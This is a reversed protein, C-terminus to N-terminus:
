KCGSNDICTAVLQGTPTSICKQACKDIVDNGGGAAFCPFVCNIIGDACGNKTQDAFCKDILPGCAGDVCTCLDLYEPPSRACWDTKGSMMSDFAQFSMMSASAAGRTNVAGTSGSMQGAHFALGLLLTAVVILPGFGKKTKWAQQDKTTTGNFAATQEM